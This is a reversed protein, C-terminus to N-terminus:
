RRVPQWTPDVDCNSGDTIRTQGGGDANMLWISCSQGSHYLTYGIRTGDPSWSPGAPDGGSTALKNAGSGQPNVATTGGPSVLSRPGAGDANVVWLESNHRFVIRSGDPSWAPADSFGDLRTLTRRGSGDANIVQINTGRDTDGSFAIRKGDPSWAPSREGKDTLRKRDTGDDNMVYIGGQDKTLGRFAIKRGDPSWTPGADSPDTSLRKEGTGDSNMVYIGGVDTFAFRTGDPSWRLDSGRTTAALEVQNTGDADMLYVKPAPDEPGTRRIFAIRGGAGAPSPPTATLGPSSPPAAVGVDLDAEERGAPESRFPQTTLAIMITALLAASGAVAAGRQKRRRRRVTGRRVAEAVMQQRPLDAPIDDKWSTM